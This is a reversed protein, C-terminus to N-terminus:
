TRTTALCLNLQLNHIEGDTPRRCAKSAEVESLKMYAEHRVQDACEAKLDGHLQWQTVTLPLVM